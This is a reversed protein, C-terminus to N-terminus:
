KRVIKQVHSKGSYQVKMFYIGSAEKTLDVQLPINAKIEGKSSGLFQGQLDFIFIEAPGLDGASIVNFQGDSVTPYVVIEQQPIENGGGNDMVLTFQGSYIGRGYSAAYVVNNGKKLDLDTVKVDSMGNYAQKWIPQDSLFNQSSWVGLETGIIVEQNNLPNPLISLVPLDPLDGEKNVWKPNADLGNETYWVSKVGYNYFTVFIEAESKGFEVDSISGVFQSSSIDKWSAQAPTGDANELRLLKGNILGLLVTSSNNQFPSVTIASISTELLSNTFSVRPAVPDNDAIENNQIPTIEGLNDYRYLTGEPGNSFLKDLNSDLAQPNIFFGDQDQNNAILAFNDESYDYSLILNNYVLNAIFYDTGIQDFFAHAGDGGLVGLSERESNQILQTGNDQTGGLFYDNTAFNSPAVAVSYFQTTIYDTEPSIFVDSTAAGALDNAFSVGGDHGFAAQNSNGPRFEMVHQDAHILSYPKGSLGINESWKSIQQWSVGSDTSRFLDIGGAYVINDDTPDAEIVLNYFAQGRAFDSPSIDTDADDPESLVSLTTFADITIWMEAEETSADEALIYFKDPNTASAEIETRLVEPITNILTFSTNEGLDRKYIKGGRAGAGEGPSDTTAVWLNGAADTEFDNFSDDQILQEWTAGGDKSNYLGRDYFGLFDTPNNAHAYIHTSVGIFVETNVGNDWAKIDNIFFVGGVVISNSGTGSNAFQKVDLVKNWTEGGDTTKFVGTGVVDGGTYQEGTGVYWTNNDRPDVTLCSVNLNSPLGTVQRWQSSVQTIDNNVWLGGSIAGAFIRKGTADNPDFLLVRTRGGVNNPGRSIWKNENTEGPAKTNSKKNRKSKLKEQLEKVKYPEPYGLAPNMTLYEMQEYYSNPPLANQIKELRSLGTDKKPAKGKLFTSHKKQLDSISFSPGEASSYIGFVIAFIIVPPIFFLRKSM